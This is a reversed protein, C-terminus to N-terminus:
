SWEEPSPLLALLDAPSLSDRMSMCYCHRAICALSSSLLFTHWDFLLPSHSRDVVVLAAHLREDVASSSLVSYKRTTGTALRILLVRRGQGDRAKAWVCVRKTATADHRDKKGRKLRVDECVKM